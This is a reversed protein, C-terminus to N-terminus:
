FFKAFVLVIIFFILGKERFPMCITNYVEQELSLFAEVVEPSSPFTVDVHTPSKGGEPM